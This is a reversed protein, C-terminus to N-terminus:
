KVRVGKSFRNKKLSQKQQRAQLKRKVGRSPDKVKLIAEEQKRSVRKKTYFLQVKSYLQNFKDNALSKIFKLLDEALNAIPSTKDAAKNKGKDTLERIPIMSYLILYPISRKGGLTQLISAIWKLVFERRHTTKLRYLAVEKRAQMVIKTSLWMLDLKRRAETITYPLKDRVFGNIPLEDNSDLLFELIKGYEFEKQYQQEFKITTESSAVIQGLTILAESAFGLLKESEDVRDLLLMFNDCLTRIIIKANQALYLDSPAASSKHEHLHVSANLAVILDTKRLFLLYLESSTIVVPTYWNILMHKSIHSWILKLKDIHRNDTVSCLEKIIIRKFLKLAHYNLRDEPKALKIKEKKVSKKAKSDQENHDTEEEDNDEIDDAADEIADDHVNNEDADDDVQITKTLEISGHIYSLVKGLKDNDLKNTAELYISVLKIGLIKINVQEHSAWQFIFKNCLFNQQNPLRQILVAIVKGVHRRIDKSEENVVRQALLHFILEYYNLLIKEPFRTIVVKLMRLISKRGEIHEYDLQRLFSTLHSRLTAPEHNFDLLYISWIKITLSQIKEDDTRVLVKAVELMINKLEPSDIHRRVIAHLSKYATIQKSNESSTSDNLNQDIYSLLAIVQPETLEVSECRLLLVTLTKICMGIMELNDGQVMGPGNYLNLIIFLRKVITNCKKKFAPIDNKIKAIFYICKLSRMICKPSTAKLCKCLIPVFESLRGTMEENNEAILTKNKDLTSLLLRLSNDLVMHFNGRENIKSVMRNRTLDKGILFRDERIFRSGPKSTQAEDTAGVEVVQRVKLSPVSEHIKAKIFDLLQLLPFQENRSLGTFIRQLCVSLKNVKKPDNSTKLLEKVKEMLNELKEATICSCLIMITDYGKTKKAEPTKALIQAIEKDEAAKGFIEKMSLDYLEDVSHDLCGYSLKIKELISHLSYNLVHIQFGKDLNQKLVRLLDPVYAPGLFCMIKIITDRASKRISESKSKLFSSLKLFLTPLHERFLVYRGPLLNLLHVIAIAIPIRKIEDKEPLYNSMQKDHEFEVRTMEHLCGNLDPLIKKTVANYVMRATSRSLKKGKPVSSAIPSQNEDNSSLPGMRKRMRIELKADEEQFEMAEPCSTLDYNFNELITTIVKINQKQYSTNAKTLLGLYYNLTTEYLKWNLTKSIIGILKISNLILGAFSKYSKTFLFGSAIPLFYSSLTKPSLSLLKDSKLLNSMGNARKNIQIHKLNLWLDLDANSNCFYNLEKLTKNIAHCHLALSRLCGIFCHKIVDNTNRIGKKIFKGLILDDIFHDAFKQNDGINILALKASLKDYFTSCNERISFEYKDVNNIIFGVQHILLEIQYKVSESRNISDENLEDLIKFAIRFGENMKVLDPADVDGTTANMAIVAEVTSDLSKDCNAVEKLLACLELRQDFNRQFALTNAVPPIISHDIHPHAQHVLAQCTKLTNLILDNKKINDIASLLLRAGTLCQLPDKVYVSVTSLILLEDKDLQYAADKKELFELCCARLRELIRPLFRLLIEHNFPPAIDLKYNKHNFEPIRADLDCFLNLENARKSDIQKSHQDDQTEDNDDDDITEPQLINRLISAVTKMVSRTTKGSTYLDILHSLLYEDTNAVNRKILFQHYITNEAFTEILKLAPTSTAYNKDIFNECAPWILYKFSFNIEIQDFRYYQFSKFFEVLVDFLHRRLVKLADIAKFSLKCSESHMDLPKIVHYIMINILKYIYKLTEVKLHGVSTMYATLTAMMAHFRNLPPYRSLDMDKCIDTELQKYDVETHRFIPNFLIGFFYLIEDTTCGSIFRMVLTKRQDAKDRGSSKKGIQGKMKGFLIRLLIPMLEARHESLVQNSSESDVSFISLESRASKDNLIRLIHSIYPKLAKIDYVILCNFSAKQVTDDRCCLFDMIINKFEDARHVGEMSRFAHIVKVATLYTEKSKRKRKRGVDTHKLKKMMRKHWLKDRRKKKNMEKPMRPEEQEQERDEEDVQMNETADAKEMTAKGYEHLNDTTSKEFFPSVLMENNIFIFLQDMFQISHKEVYNAFRAIIQFIFNRHLVHDPRDASDLTQDSIDEDYLISTTETLHDLIIDLLNNHHKSENVFVNIVRLTPGWFKEFNIYLSGLLYRISIIHDHETLTSQKTRIIKLFDELFREKDRYDSITLPVDEIKVLIEILEHDVNADEALETLRQLRIAKIPSSLALETDIKAVM